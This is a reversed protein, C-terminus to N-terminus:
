KGGDEPVVVAALPRDLWAAATWQEDTCCDCRHKDPDERKIVGCWIYPRANFGCGFGVVPCPEYVDTHNCWCCGAEGPDGCDHVCRCTDEFPVTQEGTDDDWHKCDDPSFTGGKRWGPCVKEPAHEAKTIM